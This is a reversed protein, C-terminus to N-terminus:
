GRAGMLAAAIEVRLLRPGPARLNVGTGDRLSVLLQEGALDVEDISSLDITVPRQALVLLRRTTLYLPGALADEGDGRGDAGASVSSRVALLGEGPQLHEAVASDAPVEAIATTRYRERAEEAAQEDLATRSLIATADRLAPDLTPMAIPPKSSM